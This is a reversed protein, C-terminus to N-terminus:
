AGRARTVPGDPAHTNPPHATSKRVVLKPNMTIVAPYPRPLEDRILSLLTEAATQGMSRLPQHVTTLPPNNTRAILVDDFGVVSVDRPVRLGAERLAQIAGTATLDNFAFIATFARGRQLLQRTVEFGPGPGPEPSELQVVLDPDIAMGLKAAEQTIAHWRQGTDSSIAQGKIFAIRTHGLSKLHTLALRTALAHDLEINIVGERRNHGSVSVLPVPLAEEIPTDIAVIGEVSRALMMHLHGKLLDPRHRHSVVFYFFGEKLVEDEIGSLVTTSYGESIEPVIAGITYTRKQRLSRAVANARYGHDAAARLVREQTDLAIRHASAEGNVIRSVTSQSLELLAALEKLTIPKLPRDAM